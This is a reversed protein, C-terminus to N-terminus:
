ETPGTEDAFTEDEKRTLVYTILLALGIFAPVLGGLMWPGFNLPYTVGLDAFGVPWLGILLAVGLLSLAIGWGLLGRGRSARQYQAYRAPLIGKEALAVIERHRFWRLLVITGFLAVLFGISITCMTLATWDM